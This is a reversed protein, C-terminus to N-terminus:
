SRGWNDSESDWLYSQLTGCRAAVRNHGDLTNAFLGPCVLQKKKPWFNSSHNAEVLSPKVRETTRPRCSFSSHNSNQRQPQINHKTAMHVKLPFKSHSKQECIYKWREFTEKNQWQFERQERQITDLSKSEIDEEGHSRWPWKEWLM